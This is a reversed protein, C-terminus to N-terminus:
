YNVPKVEAIESSKVYLVFVLRPCRNWKPLSKVEYITLSKLDKKKKEENIKILQLSIGKCYHDKGYMSM